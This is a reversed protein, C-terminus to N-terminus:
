AFMEQWAICEAINRLNEDDAKVFSTIVRYDHNSDDACFIFARVLANIYTDLCSIDHRYITKDTKNKRGATLHPL